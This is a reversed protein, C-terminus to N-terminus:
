MWPWTPAWAEQSLMVMRNELTTRVTLIIHTRPPGSEPPQEPPPQEPPPQAIETERPQACNWDDAAASDNSKIVEWHLAIIIFSM